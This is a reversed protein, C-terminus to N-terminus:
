SRRRRRHYCIWMSGGFLALAAATGAAGVALGPTTYRLRITHTGAELSVGILADSLPEIERKEGDVYLEWGEDAPISLVLRGADTVTIQGEVTRDTFTTLEMTQASLTAYAADLAEFDMRYLHYSIQEGNTNTISVQTGATCQGLELLYRHTTKNYQKTWGDSRTVTLADSDCDVYDAFYYGDEPIDITTSGEEEETTYVPQYLLDTEAGLARAFDNLSSLRDTESPEWAEIASEPMMYGLPLVYNNRYLYNGNCSGVLTRVASEEMQCSSLFYRVSLMASTLPTAGNYCYFNKGGEMYLSQYLHSVDLNM